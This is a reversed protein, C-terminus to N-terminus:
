SKDRKKSGGHDSQQDQQRIWVQFTNKTSWNWNKASDEESCVKKKTNTDTKGNYMSSKSLSHGINQINWEPYYRVCIQSM